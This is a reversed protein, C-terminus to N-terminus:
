VNTSTTSANTCSVTFPQLNHKGITTMTSGRNSNVLWAYLHRYLPLRQIGSAITGMLMHRALQKSFSCRTNAFHYSSPRYAARVKLQTDNDSSQIFHILRALWGQEEITEDTEGRRQSQVGPYGAGQQVGEKILVRLVQLVRDLNETTTILTKNSLLSRVLEGAVSRRTPYSQTTLLPIYHPLALATFISVYSRLPALLLHLLNQQAPASHLDAHDTYEATKQTAFDLVQDVYELRDPYTSLALNVLSVLLAMTDQIPLGRSKIINVVQEYFISYLRTEAPAGPTPVAEGNANAATEGETTKTPEETDKSAQEIGNEQAVDTGAVEAAGEKKSEDSLKVNELLKSVAEEETQKRSEPDVNTEADRAAYASLRDMLGIIIKKLDVYPNLRAIASLLLDLTNLHFEDPFVKTIVTCLNANTFDCLRLLQHKRM